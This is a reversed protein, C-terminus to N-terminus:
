IAFAGVVAPEYFTLILADAFDPSKGTKKKLDAKSIIKTQKDSNKKYKIWTLQQWVTEYKLVYERLLGGKKIWKAMKFSLEAKLNLYEPKRAKAGAAVGNVRVGKERLRDCVGRGIGVDDIFVNEQKIGFKQMIEEIIAVNIMTDNSKNHGYIMAVNDWRICYVNFDGGGGIDAGLKPEGKLEFKRINNIKKVKLDTTLLLRRYGENDIQDEPPFKCEYYVDFFDEERAEDIFEKTFGYYGNKKDRISDKYNHFIQKYRKSHSTKYFHNRFFPNGVKLLFTNERAGFMRMVTSQLINEILGAEDQIIDASGFGMAAELCRRSNRADLTLTQAGGGRKFTLHKRSREQKLRKLREFTDGRELELQSAIIPHQTAFDRVYGM